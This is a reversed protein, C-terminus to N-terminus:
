SDFRFRLKVKHILKSVMKPKPTFSGTENDFAQELTLKSTAFAEYKFYAKLIQSPTIPKNKKIGASRLIAKTKAAGDPTQGLGAQLSNIFANTASKQAPSYIRFSRKIKSLVRQLRSQQQTIYIDNLADIYNGNIEDVRQRDKEKLTVKSQLEIPQDQNKSSQAAKVFENIAGM